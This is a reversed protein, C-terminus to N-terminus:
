GGQSDANMRAPSVSIGHLRWGGEVMQYYLDFRISVPRFEFAGRLRLLGNDEVQPPLYFAPEATLSQSLDVRQARLDSFIQSLQEPSNQEKFGPSGLSWLVTYNNTRNAHDVALLTSWVMKEAALESIQQAPAARPLLLALALVAATVFFRAPALFGPAGLKRLETM